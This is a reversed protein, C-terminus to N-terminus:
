SRNGHDGVWWSHCSRRAIGTRSQGTMEHVEGGRAASAPSQSSQRQTPLRIYTKKVMKQLAGSVKSQSSIPAVPQPTVKSEMFVRDREARSTSAALRVVSSSPSTRKLPLASM